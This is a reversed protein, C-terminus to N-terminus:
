KTLKQVVGFSHWNTKVGTGSKKRIARTMNYGAINSLSPLSVLM